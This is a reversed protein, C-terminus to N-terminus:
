KFDVGIGARVTVDRSITWPSVLVDGRVFARPSIYAKVGASVVPKVRTAAEAREPFVASRGQIGYPPEVLELRSTERLVILGAGVFPHIWSNHGFQFIQQAVVRLERVRSHGSAYPYTRDPSSTPVPLLVYSSGTTTASIGVETKLHETWYYGADAGFAWRHQVDDFFQAEPLERDNAFWGVTGSVDLRPLEPIQAELPRPLILLAAVVAWAWHSLSASM